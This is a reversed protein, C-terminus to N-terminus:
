YKCLEYEYNDKKMIIGDITLILKRSIDELNWWLFDEFNVKMYEAVDRYINYAFTEAQADSILNNIIVDM